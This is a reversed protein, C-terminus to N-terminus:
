VPGRRKIYSLLKGGRGLYYIRKKVVSVTIVSASVNFNIILNSSVGNPTLVSFTVQDSGEFNVPAELYDNVDNVTPSDVWSTYPAKFTLTSLAEEERFFTFGMFISNLWISNSDYPGPAPAPLSHTKQYAISSKTATENETNLVLDYSGSILSINPPITFTFVGNLISSFSSIAKGGLTLTLINNESFNQVGVSINNQSQTIPAGGNVQIIEPLPVDQISDPGIEWETSRNEKSIDTSIGLSTGGLGLGNRDSVNLGLNRLASNSLLAFNGVNFNVFEGAWNAIETAGSISIGSDVANNSFLSNSSEFPSAVNIFSTNVTESDGRAQFFARNIDKLLCNYFKVTNGQSAQRIFTVNGSGAGLKYFIVNNFVNDAAVEGGYLFGIVDGSSEHNLEIIVNNFRLRGFGSLNGSILFFDGAFATTTNLKFQLDEIRILDILVQRFNLVRQDTFSVYPLSPNLMSPSLVSGGRILLESINFDNDLVVGAGSPLEGGIVNVIVRDNSNGSQNRVVSSSFINAWTNFPNSATGENTSGTQTGDAYLVIDAM